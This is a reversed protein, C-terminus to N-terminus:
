WFEKQTMVWEITVTFHFPQLFDVLHGMTSGVRSDHVQVIDLTSQIIPWAMFVRNWDHSHPATLKQAGILCVAKSQAHAAIEKGAVTPHLYTM